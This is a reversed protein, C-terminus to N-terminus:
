LQGFLIVREDAQTVTQGAIIKESESWMRTVETFGRATYLNIIALQDVSTRVAAARYGLAQALQWRATVLQQGVKRRRYSKAVFLEAFYYSEGASSTLEQLVDPKDKTAFGVAGGIVKGSREAVLFISHHSELCEAFYSLTASQSFVELWPPERFCRRYLRALIPLDDPTVLRITVPQHAQVTM